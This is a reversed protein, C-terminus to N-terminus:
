QMLLMKNVVVDYSTEVKYFYVGSALNSGDFQITHEGAAQEQDVLTELEHGSM